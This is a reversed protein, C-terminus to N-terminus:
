QALHAAGLLFLGCLDDLTVQSGGGWWWTASHRFCSHVRTRARESRKISSVLCGHKNLFLNTKNRKDTLIGCFFFTLLCTLTSSYQGERIKNRM